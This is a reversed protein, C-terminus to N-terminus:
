PADKPLAKEKVLIPLRITFTTGTNDSSHVSVKGHHLDVVLKVIALGLGTGSIAGVNDARYFADFLRPLAAAPIGIGEDRVIIILDHGDAQLTLEVVSDALSYKLANSVLNTIMQHILKEDMQATQDVDPANFVFKRGPPILHEMDRKIMMYFSSLRVRKDARNIGVTEAQSITMIDELLAVLHKVQQRIRGPLEQAREASLKDRYREMLDVSTQIITLPTRFEHSIMSSFRARFASLEREQNLAHELQATREAVRAELDANIDRLQRELIKETTVDQMIMVAFSERSIADDFNSQQLPRLQIVAIKGTQPQSVEFSFSMNQRLQQYSQEFLDRLPRQGTYDHLLDCIHQGQAKNVNELGWTELMRNSRIVLMKANLLCVFHPLSDVTTEWEQKAQRILRNTEELALEARRHETIDELAGDIYDIEGDAKRTIHITDRVWIQQGDTRVLNLVEAVIEKDQEWVHSLHNREAPNVYFDSSNHNLLDQISDYGLMDAMAKNASLIRGDPKVRYVGVPLSQTLSRLLEENEQITATATQLAYTQKAAIYQAYFIPGLVALVMWGGWGGLMAEGYYILIIVYALPSLVLNYVPFGANSEELFERFTVGRVSQKWLSLILINVAYFLLMSAVILGFLAWSPSQIGAYYGLTVLVGVAGASLGYMLRNMIDTSWRFRPNVFVQKTFFFVTMILMAAPPPLIFVALVGVIDMQSFIVHPMEAEFSHAILVMFAFFFIDQWSIDRPIPFALLFGVCVVYLIFLVFVFRYRTRDNGM